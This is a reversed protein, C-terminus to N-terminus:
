IADTFIFQICTFFMMSIDYINLIATLMATLAPFTAAM